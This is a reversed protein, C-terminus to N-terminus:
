DKQVETPVGKENIEWINFQGDADFDKIATATAKFSNEAIEVIEIRYYATGGDDVLVEPTFGLAEFDDSYKTWQMFHTQQRKALWNLQLQAEQSRAQSVAPMLNPLALLVLIGIIVLVILLETLTFADLRKNFNKIRM